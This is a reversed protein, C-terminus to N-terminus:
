CRWVNERAPPFRHIRSGGLRPHRCHHGTFSLGCVLSIGRSMSNRELDDCPATCGQSHKRWLDTVGAADIDWLVLGLRLQGSRVRSGAVQVSPVIRAMVGFVSRASQECCTALLQHM